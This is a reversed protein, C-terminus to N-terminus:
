YTKTTNKNLRSSKITCLNEHRKYNSWDCEKENEQSKTTDYRRNMLTKTEYSLWPCRCVKVRKTILLTHWDIIYSIIDILTKTDKTIRTLAKVIQDLCPYHM